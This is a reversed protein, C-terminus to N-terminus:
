NRPLPGKNSVARLHWEALWFCDPKGVPRVCVHQASRRSQLFVPDGSIFLQCEGSQAAVRINATASAGRMQRFSDALAEYKEVTKCAYVRGRVVHTGSASAPGALAVFSFLVILAFRLIM